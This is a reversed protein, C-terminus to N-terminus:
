RAAIYGPLRSRPSYQRCDDSRELSTRHQNELVSPDRPSLLKDIKEHIM